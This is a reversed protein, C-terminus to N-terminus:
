RTLVVTRKLAQGGIRLRLFFVGNPLTGGNGAQYSLERTYKGPKAVGREMTAVKRGAVDFLSLDYTAGAQARPISWQVAGVGHSPNSGAWALALPFDAMEDRSLGASEGPPLGGYCNQECCTEGEVTNSQVIDTHGANISEALATVYVSHAHCASASVTENIGGPWSMNSAVKTLKLVGDVYVKYWLPKWSANGYRGSATWSV